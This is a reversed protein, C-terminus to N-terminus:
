TTKCNLYAAFTDLDLPQGIKLSTLTITDGPGSPVNYEQSLHVTIFDGGDQIFLIHDTNIILDCKM